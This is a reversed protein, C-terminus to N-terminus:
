KKVEQIQANVESILDSELIINLGCDPEEFIRQIAEHLKSSERAQWGMENDEGLVLFNTKKKFSKKQVDGGLKEILKELNRRSGWKMKGTFAFSAGRFEIYDLDDILENKKVTAHLDIEETYIDSPYEPFLKVRKKVWKKQIEEQHAKEKAKKAKALEEKLRMEEAFDKGQVDCLCRIIPLTKSFAEMEEYTDIGVANLRPFIVKTLLEVMSEVDGEASHAKSCKLEFMDRLIDLKHSKTEFIARRSLCWTCIGKTGVPDLGLRIWEPRLAQDWDYRLYHAAVFRDGVYKRLQDHAEIPNIGNNALFKRDYGHVNIAATPIDIQHDLFVRFPDGDQEFGVMRQAAIEVVHIPAYLGDTETDLLVWETQDKM